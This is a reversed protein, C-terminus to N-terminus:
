VFEIHNRMSEPPLLTALRDIRRILEGPPTHQRAIFVIGAHPKHKSHALVLFDADATVLIRNEQLAYARQSCGDNGENGAELVTQVDHGRLGLGTVVAGSIHEDCYFRM